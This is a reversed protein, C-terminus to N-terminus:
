SGTGTYHRLGQRWALLALAWAGLAAVPTFWGLWAPTGAPGPLGLLLLTPLYATFAAPVVFTFLVRVPATFISTPYSAAYSGGYTFANTLEAGDVLWFQAAAAAVFLASFIAAGAIPTLVLLLVAQTSWVIESAPLAVALILLAVATRGLRRLQVDSTVLQGLVSLPRLLFADLVGTRIYTPLVDVHGVAMDALSFGINALAFVLAVGAFDLGGLVTVNSFIVYVEAFELLGIGVAGLVDLAFSRRYTLQARLRSGLLARYPAVRRAGGRTRAGGTTRAEAM